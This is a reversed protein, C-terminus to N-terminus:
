VKTDLTAVMMAPADVSIFAMALPSRVVVLLAKFSDTSGGISGVICFEATTRPKTFARECATLRGRTGKKSKFSIRAEGKLDHRRHKAKEGRESTNINLCGHVHAHHGSKIIDLTWSERSAGRELVNVGSDTADCGSKFDVGRDEYSHNGLEDRLDDGNHGIGAGNHRSEVCPPYLTMGEDTADGRGQLQISPKKENECKVSM